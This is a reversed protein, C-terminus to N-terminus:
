NGGTGKLLQEWIELKRNTVSVIEKIKEKKQFKTIINNDHVYGIVDFEYKLKNNPHTYIEPKIYTKWADLIITETALWAIRSAANGQGVSTWTEKANARLKTPCIGHGIKIQHTTSQITNALLNTITPALGIKQLAINALSPFINDYCKSTDLKILSANTLSQM